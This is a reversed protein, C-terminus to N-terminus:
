LRVAIIAVSIALYIETTSVLAKVECGGIVPDSAATVVIGAVQKIVAGM